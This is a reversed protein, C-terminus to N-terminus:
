RSCAIELTANRSIAKGVENRALCYYTGTDGNHHHDGKRGGSVHLFFLSDGLIMPNSSPSPEVKVNDDAKCNLQVPEHKKVVMSTPHEKIRPPRLQQQQQQGHQKYFWLKM